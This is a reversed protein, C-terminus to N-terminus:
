TSKGGYYYAAEEVSVRSKELLRLPASFKEIIGEDALWGCAFATGEVNMQNAFHHTIETASRLGSEELFDLIPQFIWLREYLYGRISVVISEMHTLTKEGEILDHYVRNFFQPNHRCAQQLVERSTIEGQILVEVRALAEATKLVWLFAYHADQKVHVWKEAKTLAPLVFTAAQLLQVARDREGVHQVNNYLEAVAEDHSFLLTSKSFLSHFFSSQLNSQLQKLFFGRPYLMAHISIGDEVLTYDRPAKLDETTVLLLDIDSKEWVADYSLSGCLIAALILRDQQLKVVLAALAAQYKQQVTSNNM